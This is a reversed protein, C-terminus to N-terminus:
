SGLYRMSYVISDQLLCIRNNRAVLPSDGQLEVPLGAQDRFSLVGSSKCKLEGCDIRGVHLEGSHQLFLLEYEHSVLARFRPFSTWKRVSGEPSISVLEDRPDRYNNQRFWVGTKTVNLRDCNMMEEGYSFLLEGHLDLQVLREWGDGFGTQENYSVWFCEDGTVQLSSVGVGGLSFRRIEMGQTDILRATSEQSGSDLILFSGAGVPQVDGRSTMPLRMEFLGAGELWVTAPRVLPALPSQRQYRRRERPPVARSRERWTAWEELMDQWNQVATYLIALESNPGLGLGLIRQDALVDKLDHEQRLYFSM